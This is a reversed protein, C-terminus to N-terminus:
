GGNTPPSSRSTSGPLDGALPNDQELSLVAAKLNRRLLEGALNCLFTTTGGLDLVGTVLAVRHRQTVMAARASGAAAM